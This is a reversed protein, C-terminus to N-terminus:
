TLVTLLDIVAVVCTTPHLQQLEQLAHPSTAALRKKAEALDTKSAAKCVAMLQNDFFAANVAANAKKQRVVAVRVSRCLHKACRAHFMRKFLQTFYATGKLGDSFTVPVQEFPGAEVDLHLQLGKSM